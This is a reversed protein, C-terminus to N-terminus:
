RGLIPPLAYQITGGMLEEVSMVHTNTGSCLGEAACFEGPLDLYIPGTGLNYIYSGSNTGTIHLSLGTITIRGVPTTASVNATSGPAITVFSGAVSNPLGSATYHIILRVQTCNNCAASAYYHSVTKTVTTQAILTHISLPFMLMLAAIFTQQARKLKM